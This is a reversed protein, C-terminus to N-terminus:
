SVVTLEKAAFDGAAVLLNHKFVFKVFYLNLFAFNFLVKVDLALNDSLSTQQYGVHEILINILRM